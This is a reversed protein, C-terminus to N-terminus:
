CWSVCDYCKGGGCSTWPKSEGASKALSDKSSRFCTKAGKAPCRNCQGHHVRYVRPSCQKGRPIDMSRLGPRPPANRNRRHHLPRRRNFRRHPSHNTSRGPRRPPRPNHPPLVNTPNTTPDVPPRPRPPIIGTSRTPLKSPRCRSLSIVRSAFAPSDPHPLKLRQPSYSPSSTRPQPQRSEKSEFSMRSLSWHRQM